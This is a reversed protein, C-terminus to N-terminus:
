KPLIRKIWARLFLLVTMFLSLRGVFDGWRAYFTLRDNLQITGRIGGMEGYDTAQLVDGRQNIFACTGMNASRVISKRAEIARLRAYAAHQKHGATNDWWGDNTIIAIGESGKSLFRGMYEGFISEYCISPALTHGGARFVDYKSRVRYGTLTGGLQDVIPKLFFLVRRFPFFEAGPVYLAKYYESLVGSSDMLVACNYAEVYLDEGNSREIHRTTPLAMDEPNSLIRYASLGTILYTGPYDQLFL